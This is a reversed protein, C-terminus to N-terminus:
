IATKLINNRVTPPPSNLVTGCFIIHLYNNEDERRLSAFRLKKIGNIIIAM